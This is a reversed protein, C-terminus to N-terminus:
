RTSAHRVGFSLGALAVLACVFMGVAMTVAPQSGISMLPSILGALAFQVFGMVASGSGARKRVELTGLATTNGLIISVQAVALFLLPLFLWPNLGTAAVIGLLAAAVAMICLAIFVIKATDMSDMLRRNLGTAAVMGLGNVAFVLSYLTESYGLENQLVFSSASIYSFMAGFGFAFAVTFGLFARNKLVELFSQGVARANGSTRREKPLSEPVIFVAVALQLVSIGALVWFLGRWGIPAALLGGVVPALVPALGQIMMMLAFAKAAAKGHELDPIVSRSLVVCSGSGLGAVVRAVILIWVGPSVAAVVSAVAALLAGGVLLKKRGMADSIPGVILQGFAMGIMFGSLTLQVLAESTQLDDVIAPLAPLYM